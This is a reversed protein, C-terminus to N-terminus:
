SLALWLLLGVVVTLLVGLVILIPILAKRKPAAAQEGSLYFNNHAPLTAHNASAMTGAIGSNGPAIHVQSDPLPPGSYGEMGPNSNGPQANPVAYGYSQSGTSRPNLPPSPMAERSPQHSGLPPRPVVTNASDGVPPPPQRHAGGSLPPPGNFPQAAGDWSGAGYVPSPSTNVESQQRGAEVREPEPTLRLIADHIEPNVAFRGESAGAIFAFYSEEFEDFELQVGDDAYIVPAKVPFQGLLDRTYLLVGRESDTEPNFYPAFFSYIVGEGSFNSVMNVQNVIAPSCRIMLVRINTASLHGLWNVWDRVGCSNIREIGALDLIILHDHIQHILQALTNDEDIVGELKLYTFGREQRLTTRFKSM